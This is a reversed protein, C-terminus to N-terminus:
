PMRTAEPPKASERARSVVYAQIARVQGADLIKQFSPMGANARTGGLVIAEIGELTERSAYRLDPLPGAVAKVGHCVRCHAGYLLEGQHIVKPSTDAAVAPVPPPQPHGYPPAKLTAKGDLVFTLMRGYGPKVPGGSPRNVLGSSGGWGALVSLYQVGDVTYTVPPAM